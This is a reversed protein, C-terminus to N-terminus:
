RRRKIEFPTGQYYFKPRRGEKEEEEIFKHIPHETERRGKIEEERIDKRDGKKHREMRERLTEEKRVEKQKLHDYRFHSSDREKEMREVKEEQLIKVEKKSGWPGRRYVGMGRLERRIKKAFKKNGKNNPKELVDELMKILNKVEKLEEESLKNLLIIKKNM